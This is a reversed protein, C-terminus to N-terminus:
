MSATAPIHDNVEETLVDNLSSTWYIHVTHMESIKHVRRPFYNMYTDFFKM